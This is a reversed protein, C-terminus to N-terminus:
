DHIWRGLTLEVKKAEDRLVYLFALVRRRNSFDTVSYADATRAANQAV